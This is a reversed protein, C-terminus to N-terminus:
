PSPVGQLVNQLSRGRFRLPETGCSSRRCHARAVRRGVADGDVRVEKAGWALPRVCCPSLLFAVLNIVVSESFGREQSGACMAAFCSDGTPANAARRLRSWLKASVRHVACLQKRTPPNPCRLVPLAVLLVFLMQRRASMSLRSKYLEDLTNLYAQEKEKTCWATSSEHLLREVV